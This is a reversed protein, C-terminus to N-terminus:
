GHRRCSRHRPDPATESRSRDSWWLATAFADGAAVVFISRPWRLIPEVLANVQTDDDFIRETAWTVAVLALVVPGINTLPRYFRSRRMIFLMSFVM